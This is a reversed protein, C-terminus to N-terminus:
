RELKIDNGEQGFSARKEGKDTSLEHSLASRCAGWRGGECPARAKAYRDLRLAFELEKPPVGGLTQGKAHHAGIQLLDSAKAFIGDM